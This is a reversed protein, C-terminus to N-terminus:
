IDVSFLLLYIYKKFFCCCRPLLYVTETFHVHASPSMISFVCICEM